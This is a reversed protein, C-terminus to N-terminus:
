AFTKWLLDSGYRGYRDIPISASKNVSFKAVETTCVYPASIKTLMYLECFFQRSLGRPQTESHTPSLDSSYKNYPSSGRAACM